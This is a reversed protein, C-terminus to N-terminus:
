SLHLISGLVETVFYHIVFYGQITFIRISNESNYAIMTFLTLEYTKPLAIVEITGGPNAGTNVGRRIGIAKVYWSNLVTQKLETHFCV